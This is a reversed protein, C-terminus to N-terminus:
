GLQITRYVGIEALFDRDHSAVVLGGPWARLAKVLARQGLLDLSFTPEDLILLEIAPARSFLCILAARAREGPSLSRLPRVGLALPFHHALLLEASTQASAGFRNLQETLSQDLQWNAGGQEIYGIQSLKCRAQGASPRRQGLMLELLTTKGAGNPGVVAVRERGLRLDLSEFLSRGGRNMSVAELSLLDRDVESPLVPV